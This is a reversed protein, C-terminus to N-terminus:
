EWCTPLVLVNKVPKAGGVASLYRVKAIVDDSTANTHRRAKGIYCLRLALVSKPMLAAPRSSVCLGRRPMQVKVHFRSKSALDGDKLGLKGARPITDSM